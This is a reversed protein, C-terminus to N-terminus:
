ISYIYLFFGIICASIFCILIITVTDNGYDMNELKDRYSDPYKKKIKEIRKKNFNIYIMKIFTMFFGRTFLFMVLFVLLLVIGGAALRLVLYWIFWELVMLLFGLLLFGRYCFYLPGLLLCSLWTDNNIIKLYDDGLFLEMDTEKDETKMKIQRDEDLHGCYPCFHHDSDKMLPMGCKPCKM